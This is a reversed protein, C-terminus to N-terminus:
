NCHHFLCQIVQMQTYRVSNERILKNRGDFALVGGTFCREGARVKLSSSGEGGESEETHKNKEKGASPEVAHLYARTDGTGFVFRFGEKSGHGAVM